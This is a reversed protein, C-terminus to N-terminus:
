ASPTSIDTLAFKGSRASGIHACKGAIQLNSIARYVSPKPINELLSHQRLEDISIDDRGNTRSIDIMAAYVSLEILSASGLRLKTRLDHFALMINAFASQIIVM